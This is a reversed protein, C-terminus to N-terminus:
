TFLGGVGPFGLGDVTGRWVWNRVAVVVVVLLWFRSCGGRLSGPSRGDMPASAAVRPTGPPRGGPCISRAFGFCGLTRAHPSGPCISRAFGFCGLTRAHPSVPCISRAFGFCGLTRAHPSAPHSRPCVVRRRM